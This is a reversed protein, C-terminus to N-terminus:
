FFMLVFFYRMLDRFRSKGLLWAESVMLCFGAGSVRAMSASEGALM